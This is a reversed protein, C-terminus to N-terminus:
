APYLIRDHDKAAHGDRCRGLAPARYLPDEDLSGRPAVDEQIPVIMFAPRSRHLVTFREGKAVQSVVRPMTARLTKTNIIASLATKM